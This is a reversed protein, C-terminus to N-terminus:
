AKGTFYDTKLAPRDDAYGLSSNGDGLEHDVLCPVRYHIFLGMDNLCQGVFADINKDRSDDRMISKFQRDELLALAKPRSFILCQAGWTKRGWQLGAFHWGTGLPQRFDKAARRPLYLSLCGAKRLSPFSDLEDELVEASGEAWVIDDECVMLWSEDTEQVLTTLAKTWNRKNGLRKENVVVTTSADHVLAPGDALVLVDNRFGAVDRYSALSSNLTERPRPATIIGTAIM